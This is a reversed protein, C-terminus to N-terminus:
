VSSDIKWPHKKSALSIWVFTMILVFFGLYELYQPLYVIIIKKGQNNEILWGNEWNNVLVHTKIEKGFMFPLAKSLLGLKDVQYAKWGPNFSQSLVLVNKDAISTDIAYLSQNPHSFNEIYSKSQIQNKQNGISVQSLWNYSIPIINISKLDNVSQMGKIAFNNIGIDFGQGEDMPPLLFIEEKFDSHKGLHTYIDCRSSDNNVVCLRIPLGKVNRSVISVLYAQNKPLSEYSFHECYSNDESSYRIYNQSETESVLKSIPQPGRPNNKPCDGITRPFKTIDQSLEQNGSYFAKATLNTINAEPIIAKLSSNINQPSIDFSYTPNSIFIKFNEFSEIQQEKKNSADVSIKLGLKDVDSGNFIFYQSFTKSTINSALVNGSSNLLCTSDNLNAICLDPKLEGSLEFSVQMLIDKSNRVQTLAEKEGLIKVLANMMCVQAGKATLAFGNEGLQNSGFVPRNNNTGCISLSYNESPFSPTYQKRDQEPFISINNVKKTALFARGLLYPSNNPLSNVVFNKSNNVSMVFGNITSSQINALIPSPNNKTKELPSNPYFQVQLLGDTKQLVIDVPIFDDTSQIDPYNQQNQSALNLNFNIGEYTKTTKPLFHNQNDIIDRFPYQIENEKSLTVYDQYKEFAFDEYSASMSPAISPPNNLTFIPKAKSKLTYVSLNNSFRNVTFVNEQKLLDDIEKSFLVRSNSDPSIINKDVLVYKINYKELVQSFLKGNKSYVAQSMERYYQENKPNWRDFERDLLPQKIGFWLFGAGQYGWSYYNWGWFSNIPLEAVRGNPDQKNFWSFMQYYEGPIQVKMYKSILNGKFAPFSYIVLFLTFLFLLVKPIINNKKIKESLSYIFSLGISFYIASSFSLLISFKTFPFRLAEQFLPINKQLFSFIFGFPPNISFWFFASIVFIPLFYLQAKQRNKLASIIGFIFVASFLYGLFLISLSNLHTIWSSLLMEFGKGNYVGWNFLFNKFILFDSINGFVVNQAFAEETFLSHIKSISIINGSTIAFYLDPLIWFSNVLVTIGALFLTKKLFGKNLLNYILLFLIVALFYSYWLTATHAISSSLLTILAFYFVNKRCPNLLYKYLFYFLWPLTAFHTAFMELPVFYQQVTVLNLLYFLAGLFSFIKASKSNKLIVDKILYYTGLPGFILTLFFYGYRLFSLPLVLSMLYYIIVRPIESPHGQTALAGLGQHQQWVGFIIRSFYEKFNFEPHITDWGSLITGPEYNAASIIIAIVIILVPFLSKKFLNKM